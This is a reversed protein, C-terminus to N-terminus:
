PPATVNVAVTVEPPPVGVPVTVNLSPAAVSPLPVNFTEPTAVKAVEANFAPLWLRVAAYPLSPFKVVLVDAANVCVTMAAVLEVDRVDNGLGDVYPPATVNVAVTVEPPPVGLPVTVNLSPVVENPVPVSFAEPTAVKVVEAKLAPLWLRVATYPPAPFKVPLVDAASVCVTLAAALEVDNVDERL